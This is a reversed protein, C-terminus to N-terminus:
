PTGCPKSKPKQIVKKFESIIKKIEQKNLPINIKIKMSNRSHIKPIKQKPHM